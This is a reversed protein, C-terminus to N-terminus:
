NKQEMKSSKTTKSAKEKQEYHSGRAVVLSECFAGEYIAIPRNKLFVSFYKKMSFIVDKPHLFIVM